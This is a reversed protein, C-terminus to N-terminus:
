AGGRLKSWAVAVATCAGAIYGFPKALRGIMQLVRFGGQLTTFMLIMEATGADIAGLRADIRDLRANMEDLEARTVECM